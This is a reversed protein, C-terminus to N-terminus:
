VRGLKEIGVDRFDLSSRISDNYQVSAIRIGFLLSKSVESEHLNLTNFSEELRKELGQSGELDTHQMVVAFTDEYLRYKKDEIRVTNTILQSLLKIYEDMKKKGYMSIMDSYHGIEILMLSLDNKHRKSSSMRSELENYFERINDFGTIEDKSILKVLEEELYEVRKSIQSIYNGFYGALIASAPFVLIWFFTYRSDNVGNLYDAYFLYTGLGFVSVASIVLGTLVNTNYAIIMIAFSISIIVFHVFEINSDIFLYTVFAYILLLLLIFIMNIKNLSKKVHDSEKLSRYLHVLM